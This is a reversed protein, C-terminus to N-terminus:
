KHRSTKELRGAAPQPQGRGRGVDASIAVLWADQRKRPLRRILNYILRPTDVMTAGEQTSSALGRQVNGSTVGADNQAVEVHKADIVLPVTDQTIGIFVAVAAVHKEPLPMAGTIARSVRGQSLGIAKALAFQQGYAVNSQLWKTEIVKRARMVRFDVAGNAALQM